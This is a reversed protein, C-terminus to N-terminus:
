QNAKRKTWATAVATVGPATTSARKVAVRKKLWYSLDVKANPGAASTSNTDETEKDTDLLIVVSKADSMTWWHEETSPSSYTMRGLSPRTPAFHFDLHHNVRALAPTIGDNQILEHMPAWRTPMYTLFASYEELISELKALCRGEVSVFLASREAELAQIAKESTVARQTVAM